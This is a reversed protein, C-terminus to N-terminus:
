ILFCSKKGGSARQSASLYIIDIYFAYLYTFAYFLILCECFYVPANSLISLRMRLFPSACEGFHVLVHMICWVHSYIRTPQLSKRRPDWPNGAGPGPPTGLRLLRWGTRIYVCTHHIMCASTWKPSHALGNQRIRRDMKDFAGTQKQSHRMKDIHIDM